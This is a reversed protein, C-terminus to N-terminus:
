VRDSKELASLVKSAPRKSSSEGSEWTPRSVVRRGIYEPSASMDIAPSPLVRKAHALQIESVAEDRNSCGSSSNRKKNGRLGGALLSIRQKGFHSKQLRGTADKSRARAVSRYLMYFINDNFPLPHGRM